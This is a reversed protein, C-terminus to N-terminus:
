GAHRQTSLPSLRDGYKVADKIFSRFSHVIEQVRPEAFHPSALLALRVFNGFKTGPREFKATESKSFGPRAGTIIQYLDYLAWGFAGRRDDQGLKGGTLREVTAIAAAEITRVDDLIDSIAVAHRMTEKFEPPQKKPSSLKMRLFPWAAEAAKTANIYGQAAGRYKAAASALAQAQARIKKSDDARAFRRVAYEIESVMDDIDDGARGNEAVIARLAAKAKRADENECTAPARHREAFDRLSERRVKTLLGGNKSTRLEDETRWAIGHNGRPRMVPPPEPSPRPDFKRDPDADSLAQFLSVLDINPDFCAARSIIAYQATGASMRHDRRFARYLELIQEASLQLGAPAPSALNLCDVEVGDKDVNVATAQPKERKDM